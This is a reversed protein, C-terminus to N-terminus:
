GQPSSSIKRAQKGGRAILSYIGGAISMLVLAKLVGGPLGFGGEGREGRGEREPRFEGEDGDGFEVGEAPRPRGEGQEFDGPGASTNSASVGVYMLGGILTAAVLIVLIRFLTNM